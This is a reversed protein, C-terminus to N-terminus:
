IFLQTMSQKTNTYEVATIRVKIRGDAGGSIVHGDHYVLCTADGTHQDEISSKKDILGVM